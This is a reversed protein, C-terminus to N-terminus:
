RVETMTFKDGKLVLKTNKFQKEPLKMGEAEVSVFKWTGEFKAYEKKLADKKTDDAAILLGVALIMLAHMRM